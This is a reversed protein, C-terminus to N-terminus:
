YNRLNGEITIKVNTTDKEGETSVVDELINANKLKAKFYALQEYKPSQAEITIHQLTQGNKTIETNKISTLQVGKPITYVIKNLLTPIQNKRSRKNEIASSTNELNTKYKEYDTKKGLIKSDDAQANQIQTTTDQIVENTKAISSNIQKTIISSSVCYFVIILFLVICDSILGRELNKFKGGLNLNFNFKFKDKLSTKNSKSGKNVKVGGGLSVDSTLLAKIKEWTDVKRFNLKKIGFGLGQIALSIADNVEIFDKINANPISNTFFPKLIEVKIGKFYEQFYLDVNNIVTGYGTLYIQDIKKYNDVMTTIENVIKYLEPVIYQLYENNAVDTVNSQMEMTYITTNKLIEYTKLESNEKENIKDFAERLGMSSIDINYVNRDIITTITTIDELNVIMVNKNKEIQLINPIATSIPTVCQLNTNRFLNIREELDGKNDYIYIVKNKDQENLDKTYFFRGELANSNLHNESCFSEFETEIAKQAYGKNALNFLNFNYYKEDKINVSIPTNLSNTDQVIEKIKSELEINKYFKVGYSSVKFSNNDKQVKAYKILRDNISVGLCEQM